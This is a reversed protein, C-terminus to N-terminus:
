INELLIKEIQKKKETFEPSYIIDFDRPRSFGPILESSVTAPRGSLVYVKDSLLLAEDIEHTVFVVSKRHNEWVDLLWKQMAKRNIADLSSFPEDLLLIERGELYTRALAARKAMGGSLEWPMHNEFGKLGFEKLLALVEGNDRTKKGSALELPLNV